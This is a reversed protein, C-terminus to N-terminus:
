YLKRGNRMLKYLFVKGAEKDLREPSILVLYEGLFKDNLYCYVCIEFVTSNPFKNSTSFLKGM